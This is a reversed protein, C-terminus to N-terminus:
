LFLTMKQVGSEILALHIAATGSTLALASNIGTYNKVSNEFETVNEGLPAM